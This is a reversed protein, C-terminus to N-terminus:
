GQIILNLFMSCGITTESPPPPILTRGSSVSTVPVPEQATNASRSSLSTTSAIWGSLTDSEPQIELSWSFSGFPPTRDRPRRRSRRSSRSPITSRSPALMLDTLVLANRQGEASCVGTRGALSALSQRYKVPTADYADEAARLHSSARLM